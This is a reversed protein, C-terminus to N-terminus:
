IRRTWFPSSAWRRESAYINRRMAAYARWMTDVVTEYREFSGSVVAQAAEVGTALASTIGHSSLPDLAMAADGAACWGEGMARNLRSSGAHVLQPPATVAYAYTEIRARTHPATAFPMAAAERPAVVAPDTIFMVALRGDPLVASYWWGQEVAEVLTWSDRDPAGDTELFAVVAILVDDVIRQAGARHAFWSARGTADIVFPAEITEGNACRLRWVANNGGPPVDGNRSVDVVRAHTKREAGAEVARRVLLQEFRRRDLHWGKGYPSFLFPMEDIRESGWSSRNGHCPLHGDAALDDWVGLQELLPRAGPAISEGPKDGRDEGRELIVARLGARALTLAAASAAPGGGVIAM